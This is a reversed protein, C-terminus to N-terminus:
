TGSKFKSVWYRKLVSLGKMVMKSATWDVDIFGKASFGKRESMWYEVVVKEDISERMFTSFHASTRKGCIEIAWIGKSVQFVFYRQNPKM